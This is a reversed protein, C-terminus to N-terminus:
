SAERIAHLDRLITRVTVGLLEAAQDCTLVGDPLHGLNAHQTNIRMRALAERRERRAAATPNKGPPEPAPPPEPPQGHWRYPKWTPLGNRQPSGPSTATVRM